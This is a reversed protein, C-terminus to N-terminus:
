LRRARDLHVEGDRISRTGVNARPFDVHLPIPRSDYDEEVYIEKELSEQRIEGSAHPEIRGCKDRARLFVYNNPNVKTRIRHMCVRLLGMLFWVMFMCGAVAIALFVSTVWM